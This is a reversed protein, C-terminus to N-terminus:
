GLILPLFRMETLLIQLRIITKMLVTKGCGSEGIIAITEGKAVQLNIDRLVRQSGFRVCLNRLDIFSRDDSTTDTNM